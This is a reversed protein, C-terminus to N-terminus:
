SIHIEFEQFNIVPYIIHIDDRVILVDTSRDNLSVFPIPPHTSFNTHIVFGTRINEIYTGVYSVIRKHKRIISRDDCEFWYKVLDYLEINFSINQPM